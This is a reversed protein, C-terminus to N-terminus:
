REPLLMQCIEHLWQLLIIERICSSTIRMKIRTTGPPLLQPPNQQKIFGSEEMQQPAQVGKSKTSAKHLPEPKTKTNCTVPQCTNAKAQESGEPLVQLERQTKALAAKAKIEKVRHNSKQLLAALKQQNVDPQDRCPGWQFELVTM